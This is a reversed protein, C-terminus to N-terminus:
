SAIRSKCSVFERQIRVMDAVKKRAAKAPDDRYAPLCRFGHCALNHKNALAWTQCQAVFVPRALWEEFSGEAHNKM